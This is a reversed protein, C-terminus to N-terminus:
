IGAAGKFWGQITASGRPGQTAAHGFQKVYSRRWRFFSLKHANGCCNTEPRASRFVVGCWECVLRYQQKNPGYKKGFKFGPM